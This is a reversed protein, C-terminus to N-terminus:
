AAPTEAEADEPESADGAAEERRRARRRAARERERARRLLARRERESLGGWVGWREGRAMADELCAAQVACRACWSKAERTMLHVTGADGEPHFLDPDAARCAADEMWHAPRPLNDPAHRSRGPRGASM